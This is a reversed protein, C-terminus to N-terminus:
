GVIMGHMNECAKSGFDIFHPSHALKDVIFILKLLSEHPM